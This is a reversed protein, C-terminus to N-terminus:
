NRCVRLFYGLILPFIICSVILLLWNMWKGVLGDKAYAFSGTVMKGYDVMHVVYRCIAPRKWACAIYIGIIGRASYFPIPFIVRPGGEHDCYYGHLSEDEQGPWPM